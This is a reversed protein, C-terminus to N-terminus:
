FTRYSQISVFFGHGSSDNRCTMGNFRSQCTFAGVSTDTGYPLIKAGPDLTTDGACVLHGPRGDAVIAGQGFDVINPCSSPRPPPTWSKTKLDCRATDAIIMCGINGTPSKFTAVHIANAATSSTTTTSSSTTTTVTSSGSVTTLIPGSRPSSTTATVVVTKTHSAGGCGALGLLVVAALVLSKSVVTRLRVL